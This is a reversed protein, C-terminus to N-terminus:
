GRAGTNRYAVKFRYTAGSSVSTSCNNGSTYTTQASCSTNDQSSYVYIGTAASSYQKIAVGVTSLLGAVLLATLASFRRRNLLLERKHHEFHPKKAMATAM